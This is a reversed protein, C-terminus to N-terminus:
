NKPEESEEYRALIFLVDALRNLYSLLADNKIENNQKLTVVRREARRIITRVLDLWASGQNAGPIIFSRPLEVKAEIENIIKELESVMGDNILGFKEALKDYDESLTALEANVKFLEQQIKVIIEITRSKTVSHRAIGLASIAEDLTGYAECRVSNKAVRRGFLLSTEGTDGKKNFTKM